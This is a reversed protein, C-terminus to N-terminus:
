LLARRAKAIHKREPSRTHKVSHFLLRLVVEAALRNVTHCRVRSVTPACTDEAAHGDSPLEFPADRGEWFERM